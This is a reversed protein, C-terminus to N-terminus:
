MGMCATWATGDRAGIANGHLATLILAKALIVILSEASALASLSALAASEMWKRFTVVCELIQIMTEMLKM